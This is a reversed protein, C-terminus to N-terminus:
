ISGSTSGQITYSEYTFAVNFKVATNLEETSLNIADITVPYANLFRVTMVERYNDDGNLSFTNTDSDGWHELKILEMDYTYTNYYMMRQVRGTLGQNANQAIMDFWGRLDKYAAYDTDAIVQMTFPKEFIVATPQERVVGMNEHGAVAVTNARVGPISTATCFFEIYDQTKRSVIGGPLRVKFLTPRSPGRDMLAAAQTYSM